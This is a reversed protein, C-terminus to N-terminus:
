CPFMEPKLPKFNPNLMFIVGIIVFSDTYNSKELFWDAQGVYGGHRGTSFCSQPCLLTSGFVNKASGQDQLPTVMEWGAEMVEEVIM